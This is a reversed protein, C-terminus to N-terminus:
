VKRYYDKLPILAADEFGTKNKDLIKTDNNTSNIKVNTLLNTQLYPNELSKIVPKNTYMNIVENVLKSRQVDMENLEVLM